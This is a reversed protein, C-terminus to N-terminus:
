KNITIQFFTQEHEVLLGRHHLDDDSGSSSFCGGYSINVDIFILRFFALTEAGDVLVGGVPQHKETRSGPTVILANM